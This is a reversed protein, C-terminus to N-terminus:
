RQGTPYKIPGLEFPGEDKDQSQGRASSSGGKRRADWISSSAGRRGFCDYRHQADVVAGNAVDFKVCTGSAPGMM